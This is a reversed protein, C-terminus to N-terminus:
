GRFIEEVTKASLIHESWILLQDADASEIRVLTETDLDGFKMRMLRLLIGAEGKQMGEERGQEIGEQKWEYTWEKVREALMTDVETLDSIEPLTQGPLRVPLLVRRIWVAFARRLSTQEPAKLWQILAQVLAQVDAPHDSQELRFIAAVLNDASVGQMDHRSEDLLLYTLTPRYKSLGGPVQQILDQVSTTSSWRQKGNYLVLPLVPPLKGNDLLADTRILDQYLLGIYTMLRVAMFRDVTSQFEILIYVYIWEDRCRVRWITDDERERLDDSVYSGNTKELTSLDLDDIWAEQVFGTLLDRVLEAHSFLQKYSHDHDVM